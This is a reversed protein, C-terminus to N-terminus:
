ACWENEQFLFICVVNGRFKWPIVIVAAGEACDIVDGRGLYSATPEDRLESRNRDDDMGM